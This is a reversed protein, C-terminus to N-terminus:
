RCFFIRELIQKILDSIRRILDRFDLLHKVVQVTDRRHRPQETSSSGGVAPVTAAYTKATTTETQATSGAPPTTSSPQECGNVVDALLQWLVFSQQLHKV